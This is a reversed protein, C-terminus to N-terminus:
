GDIFPYLMGDYGFQEFAARMASAFRSFRSAQQKPDMGPTCEGATLRMEWAEGDLDLQSTAMVTLSLRPGSRVDVVALVRPLHERRRSQVELRVGIGKPSPDVPLTIEDAARPTTWATAFITVFSVAV